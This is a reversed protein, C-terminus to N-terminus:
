KSRKKQKKVTRKTRSECSINARLKNKIERLKQASKMYMKQKKQEDFPNSMFDENASYEYIINRKEAAKKISKTGWRLKYDNDVEDYVLRSRRPDKEIRKSKAFIEWKTHMKKATKPIPMARPLAFKRECIPQLVGFVGHENTERPLKHM